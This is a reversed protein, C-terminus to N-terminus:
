LALSAQQPVLTVAQQLDQLHSRMLYIAYMLAITLARIVTSLSAPQYRKNKSARILFAIRFALGIPALCAFYLSQRLLFLM